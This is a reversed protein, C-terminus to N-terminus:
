GYGYGDCGHSFGTRTVNGMSNGVGEPEFQVTFVWALVFILLVAVLNLMYLQKEHVQYFYDLVQGCQESMLLSVIPLKFEIFYWLFYLLQEDKLKQYRVSIDPCFNDNNHTNLIFVNLNDPYLTKQVSKIMDSYM